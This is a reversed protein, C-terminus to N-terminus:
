KDPRRSVSIANIMPKAYGARAIFRVDLRQDTVPVFFM